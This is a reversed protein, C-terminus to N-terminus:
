GGSEVSTFRKRADEDFTIRNQDAVGSSEKMASEFVCGSRAVIAIASANRNLPVPELGRKLWAM